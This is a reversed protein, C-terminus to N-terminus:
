IFYIMFAAFEKFIQLRVLVNKNGFLTKLKCQFMSFEEDEVIQALIEKKIETILNYVLFHLFWDIFNLFINVSSFEISEISIFLLFDSRNLNFNFNNINEFM